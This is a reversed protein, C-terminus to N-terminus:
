NGPLGYTKDLLPSKQRIHKDRSPVIPLIPSPKPFKCSSLCDTAFAGHVKRRPCILGVSKLKASPRWSSALERFPAKARTNDAFGYFLM